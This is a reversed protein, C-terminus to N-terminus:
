IEQWLDRVFRAFVIGQASKLILSRRRQHDRDFVRIADIQGFEVEPEIRMAVLVVGENRVSMRIM